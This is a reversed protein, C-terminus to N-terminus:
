KGSTAIVPAAPPASPATPPEPTLPVSLDQGPSLDVLGAIKATAKTGAPYEVQGGEISLAAISALPSVASLAIGVAISEGGHGSGSGGLKFARLPVRIGHHDIYHAALVLKGARGGMGPPAADIVEGMGQDGVSLVEKGGLIVPADVQIRFKDGAKQVKSSLPDVLGVLIM